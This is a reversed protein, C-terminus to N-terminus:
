HSEILGGVPGGSIMAKCKIADTGFVFGRTYRSRMGEGRRTNGGQM